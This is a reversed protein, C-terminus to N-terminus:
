RDALRRSCRPEADAVAEGLERVGNTTFTSSRSSSTSVTTGTDMLMPLLKQRGIAHSGDRQLKHFPEEGRRETLAGSKKKHWDLCPSHRCSSRNTVGVFRLGLGLGTGVTARRWGHCRGLGSSISFGVWLMTWPVLQGCRLYHADVRGSGAGESGVVCYPGFSHECLFVGRRLSFSSLRNLSFLFNSCPHIRSGPVLQHVV